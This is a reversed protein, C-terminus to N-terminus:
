RTVEPDVIAPGKLIRLKTTDPRTAEVDYVLPKVPLASTDVATLEIEFKGNPADTISISPAYLVAPSSYKERIQM